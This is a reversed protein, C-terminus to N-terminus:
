RRRRRKGARKQRKMCTYVTKSKAKRKEKKTKKKLKERNVKAIQKQIDELSRYEGLLFDLQHKEIDAKALTVRVKDGLEFLAEGQRSRYTYTNEDFYGQGNEITSNHILGECGNELAVFLGFNAMGSITADFPEGVFPAMYETRKLATTEREAEVARRETMSSQETAKNMWEPANKDSTNGQLIKKLLRHVLLDPYRRIPSTFHTYCGSALGFHGWNIIDYYAQPLSRLVMMEVVSGVGHQNAEKIIKQIEKSSPEESLQIPIGLAEMLRLLIQLKEKDPSRHVRFVATNEKKSIKRAITENAILMAEEIMQEAITREKKVIKLPKGQQDLMVKYEPFDFELAGRQQRMKILIDTLKHWCNLMEMYPTLSEPYIEELIAKKIEAYTCRRHNRILSPHIDASLVRGESNIEMVVSMAYKDTGENLSCVGNSLVEPLMPIVRDALYVSNGRRFAEKDLESNEKVYHSVDAIHVGLEFNGNEKVLCHVADDLDKADAGDVTIIPLARYDVREGLQIPEKAVREAEVLVTEPFMTPIRHKAIILTIDLGQDGEYGLVEEVEGEAMRRLTPWRHIRVLVKAGSRAEKGKGEPIFIDTGIREDDPTVVAFGKNLEYTGVVTENARELVHVVRGEYRGGRKEAIVEVQVKDNHMASNLNIKDIYIDEKRDEVILFGFQKTYGKYIGTVIQGPTYGRVQDTVGQFM